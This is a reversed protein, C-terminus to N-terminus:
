CALYRLFLTVRAERVQVFTILLCVFVWCILMIAGLASEHAPFVSVLDFILNGLHVETPVM